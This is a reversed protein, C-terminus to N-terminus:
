SNAKAECRILNNQIAYRVLDALSHMDLKNMLNARHTEVTRVSIALTIAAEKNSKGLALLRLVDRERQSLRPQPPHPVSPQAGGLPSENVVDAVGATCYFRGESIAEVAPILDKGLESKLVYGHAGFTLLQSLTNQSEYGSLILVRSEPAEALIRRTADPGNEPLNIDMVILDPRHEVAIAIAERGNAAEWCVEWGLRSALVERVGEGMVLPDAAVLIRLSRV